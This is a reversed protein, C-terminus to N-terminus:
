KLFKNITKKILAYREDGGKNIIDDDAAQEFHHAYLPKGDVQKRLTISQNAKFIDKWVRRVDKWYNQQKEWDAYGQKFDFNKIRTYSNHGLERAVIDGDTKNNVDTLTQKRKFGRQEHFWRNATVVLSESGLLIKYDSRVSRERRPLPRSMLETNFQSLNKMHSWQGVGSYRPSDDVQYVEWLWKGRKENDLLSKTVWTRNGQYEWMSSAQWTWDQRWHKMVIPGIVKGNEKNKYYMVMIHQLSIFDGTDELLKVFETAWSIYPKDLKYKPDVTFTELFEFKTKYEGQLALIARRDKEYTSLGPQQLDQWVKPAVEDVEVSTGTTTGGRTKTLSDRTFTWSDTKEKAVSCACTLALVALLVIKSM